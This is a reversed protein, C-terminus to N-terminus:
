KVQVITYTGQRTKMLPLRFLCFIENSWLMRFVLDLFTKHMFLKTYLFIYLFLCPWTTITVHLM